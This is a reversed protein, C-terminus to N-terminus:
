QGPPKPNLPQPSKAYKRYRRKAKFIQITYGLIALAAVLAFLGLAEWTDRTYFSFINM